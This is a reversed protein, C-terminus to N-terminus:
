KGSFNAAVFSGRMTLFIYLIKGKKGKSNEFTVLWEKTKELAKSEKLESKKWSSDIKGADVLRRVHCNGVLHASENLNKTAKKKCHDKPKHKHNSHSFVEGSIMLFVLSLIFNKM